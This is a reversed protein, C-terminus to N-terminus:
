ASLPPKRNEWPAAKELQSAIRILLDERGYAAVFHVGIPLGEESWHLPLSIAPQGTVNFAPTFPIVELNRLWKKRPDGGPGGLDGLRPPPEAITPTVLLDHGEAWWSAMRRSWGQLWDIASIYKAAPVKRGEEVFQWTYPEVDSPALPRGLLTGIFDITQATHADVVTIFHETFEAEDYAPPASVEVYHGLSELLRGTAEVARVCEPHLPRRHLPERTMLGIRLRGPDRGVEAAFPREPPPAFYPDGPEPGSLIDLLAASDRVSRSVVGETALGHWFEGAVPAFSIRGRSPKLGVIGCESAPIRISGGGDSAGAVPVMRAAVAAASGGSSGGTSHAPNWPNRSPGYALPETTAALGLEPTNTRGVFVFGAARLRAVFVTDIPGVFGVERLLRMGNHNPDGESTSVLDKLVFPVGRFPGDPLKPSEAAARAKEFLRIVVANLEPDLREIRSIAADVLERPTAEKRRVLDAQATADLDAYPDRM